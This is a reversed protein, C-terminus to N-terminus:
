VLSKQNEKLQSQVYEQYIVYNLRQAAEIIQKSIPNVLFDAQLNNRNELLCFRTRDLADADRIVTAMKFLRAQEEPPIQYRNFLEQIDSLHHLAHAEILFKVEYDKIHRPCNVKAAYKIAGLRGHQYSNHDDIRGIDHYISAEIITKVDTENLGINNAIFTAFLSVNNAHTAGHIPSMELYLNERSAIKAKLYDYNPMQEVLKFFEMISLQKPLDGYKALKSSILGLPDTKEETDIELFAEEFTNQSKAENKLTNRRLSRIIEQPSYKLKANDIQIAMDPNEQIFKQIDINAYSEQLQYAFKALQFNYEDAFYNYDLDGGTVFRTHELCNVDNILRIFWTSSWIFNEPQIELHYQEVLSKLKPLTLEKENQIVMLLKIFNIKELPYNANQMLKEAKNLSSTLNQNEKGDMYSCTRYKIADLIDSLDINSYLEPNQSYIYTAYFFLNTMHRNDYPTNPQYINDSELEQIKKVFTPNDLFSLLNDKIHYSATFYQANPETIQRKNFRNLCNDEELANIANILGLLSKPTTENVKSLCQMKFEFKQYPELFQSILKYSRSLTRERNMTQELEKYMALAEQRHNTALLEEIKNMITEMIYKIFNSDFYIDNVNSTYTNGVINNLALTIIESISGEQYNTIVQMLKADIQQRQYKAIKMRDVVIVPLPSNEGLQIAAKVTSEYIKKENENLNQYDECFFVVYSPKKKFTSHDSLNRREWVMENHTHRTSNAMTRPTCFKTNAKRATNFQKNVEASGIDFPASLLLAEPDFDTFGLCAHCIRATGLNDNTLYSCCFGHSQILDINWNAYYDDPEQHDSYAGLSTMVLAFPKQTSGLGIPSYIPVSIGDNAPIYKITGDENIIQKFSVTQMLDKSDIHYLTANYLKAFEARISSDLNVLLNESHIVRPTEEFIQRLKEEDDCKYVNNILTMINKLEENTSIQCFNEVDSCYVEAIRNFEEINIGLLSLAIAEKYQHNNIYTAIQNDVLHNYNQLDNYNKISFTNKQVLTKALVARDSTSLEQNVLDTALESYESLNSLVRDLLDIWNANSSYTMIQKILNLNATDLSCLAQSIDRHAGIMELRNINLFSFRESFLRYDFTTLIERNYKKLANFKTSFQDYPLNINQACKELLLNIVEEDECLSLSNFSKSLEPRHGDFSRFCELWTSKLSPNDQCVQYSALNPIFNHSFAHRILNPNPNTALCICLLDPNAEIIEACYSDNQLNNQMTEQMKPTINELSLNNGLKIALNTLNAGALFTAEQEKSLGEKIQTYILNPKNDVLYSLLPEKFTREKAYIFNKFPEYDTTEYLQDQHAPSLGDLLSGLSPPLDIQPVELNNSHYMAVLERFIAPYHYQEIANNVVNQLIINNSFPKSSIIIKLLEKQEDLTFLNLDTPTIDVYKTVVEKALEFLEEHTIKDKVLKEVETVSNFHQYSKKIIGKLCRILTSHNKIRDLLVKHSSINGFNYKELYDAIIDESDLYTLLNIPNSNLSYGNKKALLTNDIISIIDPQSMKSLFKELRFPPFNAIKISTEEPFERFCKRVFRDDKIDLLYNFVSQSRYTGISPFENQVIATITKFATRNNLQNLNAPSFCQAEVLEKFGEYSLLNYNKPNLNNTNYQKKLNEVLRKEWFSLAM